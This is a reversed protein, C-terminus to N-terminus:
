KGVLGDIICYGALLLFLVFAWFLVLFTGDLDGWRNKSWDESKM